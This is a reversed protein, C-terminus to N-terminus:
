LTSGDGSPKETSFSTIRGGYKPLIITIFFMFIPKILININYNKIMM